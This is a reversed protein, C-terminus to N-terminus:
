SPGGLKWSAILRCNGPEYWALDLRDARCTVPVLSGVLRRTSAVTVRDARADLTLHPRVDPFQGAYPRKDPFAACLDATLARFPEGPEPALHIIGNPFVDFRELAFSFPETRAAIAAVLSLNDATLERSTLFPGLATVHAHVFEPDASVYDTDYHEHRARVFPELEPVPVQLVSHGAADSLVNVAHPVRSLSLLRKGM